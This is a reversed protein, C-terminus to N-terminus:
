GRMSYALGAYPPCEGGPEFILAAALDAPRTLSGAHTTLIKNM